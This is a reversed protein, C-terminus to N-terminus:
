RGQYMKLFDASVDGAECMASICADLYSLSSRGACQQSIFM